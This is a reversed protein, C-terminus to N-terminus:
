KQRGDARLEAISQQIRAIREKRDADSCRSTGTELRSGTTASNWRTRIKISHVTMMPSQDIGIHALQIARTTAPPRARRPNLSLSRYRSPRVKGETTPKNNQALSNNQGCRPSSTGKCCSLLSGTPSRVSLITRADSLPAFSSPSGHAASLILRKVYDSVAATVKTLEPRIPFPRGSACLMYCSDAPRPTRRM